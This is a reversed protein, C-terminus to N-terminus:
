LSRDGVDGEDEALLEGGRAELCYDFAGSEGFEESVDLLEFLLM